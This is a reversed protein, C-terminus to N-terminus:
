RKAAGKTAPKRASQQLTPGDSALALATAASRLRGITADLGALLSPTREALV